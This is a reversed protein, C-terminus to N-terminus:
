VHVARKKKPLHACCGSIRPTRHTGALKYMDHCIAFAACMFLQTTCVFLTTCMFYISVTANIFYIFLIANRFLTTRTFSYPLRLAYSHIRLAYSYPIHPIDIFLIHLIDIFLIDLIDIFLCQLIDIFPIHLIDIFLIHLIYMLLIHLFDIFLIHLIDMLLIHLVDILLCQLIDMFLIHLIDMFIHMNIWFTCVFYIFSSADTFLTAHIFWYPLRFTYEILADHIFWYPLLFTYEILADHWSEILCTVCSPTMHILWTALSHTTDRIFSDNMNSHTM